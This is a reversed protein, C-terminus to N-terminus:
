ALSLSSSVLRHDDSLHCPWAIPNGCALITEAHAPRPLALGDHRWVCASGTLVGAYRRLTPALVLLLPFTVRHKQFFFGLIGAVWTEARRCM